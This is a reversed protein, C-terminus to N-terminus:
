NCLAPLLVLAVTASVMASRMRNRKVSTAAGQQAAETSSPRDAWSTVSQPTAIAGQSAASGAFSFGPVDSDVATGSPREAFSTMSTSADESAQSESADESAVSLSLASLSAYFASQSLAALSWSECNVNIIAQELSISSYDTFTASYHYCDIYCESSRNYYGNTCRCLDQAYINSLGGYQRSCADDSSSQLM